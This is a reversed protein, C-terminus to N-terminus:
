ISESRKRLILIIGLLAVALFYSFNVILTGWLFGQVEAFKAGMIAAASFLAAYGCQVLLQWKESCVTLLVTLLPSALFCFIQSLNAIWAIELVQEAIKPYLLRTFVPAVVMIAGYLVMGGMALVLTITLFQKRDVNKDSKALYGLLVGNLPGVLLAATKGFLSAVYYITPIDRGILNQLLIRDMYIVTNNLLYACTLVSTKKMVDPWNGSIALPYYVSGRFLLLLFCLLEGLLFCLMWSGTHSSIIMGILYGASIAFYYLLYGKYHLTMRYEVDGYFRFMTFILLLFALIYNGFGRLYTSICAFYIVSAITLLPLMALLYDGNETKSEKSAVLRANNAALGISPTLIGLIALAYLIDSFREPGVAKELHPYVIIQLTGHMLMLALVSWLVDSYLRGKRKM